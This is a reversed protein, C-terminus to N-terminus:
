RTYYEREDLKSILEMSDNYKVDLDGEFKIISEKTKFLQSILQHASTKGGIVVNCPLGSWITIQRKIDKSMKSYQSNRFLDVDQHYKDPIIYEAILVDNSLYSNILGTRPIIANCNKCNFVVYFKYDTVDIYCDDIYESIAGVNFLTPAIFRTTLNNLM